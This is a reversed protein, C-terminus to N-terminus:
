IDAIDIHATDVMTEIGQVINATYRWLPHLLYMKSPMGGISRSFDHDIGM